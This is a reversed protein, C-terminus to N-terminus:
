APKPAYLPPAYYTCTAMGILVASALTFVTLSSGVFYHAAVVELPCHLAMAFNKTIASAYKLIRSVCLGMSIAAIAWCDYGFGEFFVLPSALRRIDLIAVLCLCFVCTESYLILNQINLDMAVDRKVFYENLVCGLAALLACSVVLLVHRDVYISFGPQVCNVICGLTLLGLALVKQGTVPARFMVFWLVANFVIGTQYWVSYHALSVKALCILNIVNVATFAMAVFTMTAATTAVRKGSPLSRPPM